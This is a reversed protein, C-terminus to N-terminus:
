LSYVTGVDLRVKHYDRFDQTFREPEAPSLLVHLPVPPAKIYPVQNLSSDSHNPFSKHMRPAAQVETRPTSGPQEASLRPLCSGAEAM